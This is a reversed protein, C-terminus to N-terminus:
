PFPIYVSDIRINKPKLIDMFGDLDFDAPAKLLRMFQVSTPLLKHAMKITVSLLTGGIIYLGYINPMLDIIDDILVVNGKDDVIKVDCLFLEEVNGGFLLFKLDDFKITNNLIRVSELQSCLCKQFFLPISKQEDHKGDLILKGTNWTYNTSSMRSYQSLKFKSPIFWKNSKMFKLLQRGKVNDILYQIYSHRFDMFPMVSSRILNQGLQKANELTEAAKVTDM